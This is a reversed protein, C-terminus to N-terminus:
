ETMNEEPQKYQTKYKMLTNEVNRFYKDPTAAVGYIKAIKVDEEMEVDEM